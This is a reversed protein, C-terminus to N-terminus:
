PSIAQASVTTDATRFEYDSFNPKKLEQMFRKATWPWTVLNGNKDFYWSSCGTLWVSGDMAGHLAENFTKTAAATPVIADAKKRIKTKICQLIHKSQAEAAAIVSFNGVPSNPGLLMFFNPFDPLSVTRYASVGNQWAENISLGHQNILNIPRMYAVPNFGTALVLVDLKHTTGDKTVVGQESISDIGETVLDVNDKQLCQYFNNSMVLRKCGPMYDPTLKKRLNDDKVRDLNKQTLKIALKRQWGDSIVLESFKEFGIKTIYYQLKALGPIWRRLFKQRATYVINKAPMIWEPTRQFLKLNGAQRSIPDMMQSGTSGSGIVGVTKGDLDVSHDWQASHFKDGAFDELGKIDPFVPQHLIGCASIVFDATIAEGQKFEVQWKAGDFTAKTVESDFSLHKRLDYKDAVDEFYQKIEDGEVFKKSWDPNQEFSYSYYYSPVDCAVGPYTNERWTGGLSEAKEYITFSNFGAKKLRIGMLLGSMGSGIICFSTANKSM